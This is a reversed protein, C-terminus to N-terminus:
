ALKTNLMMTLKLFREGKIVIKPQYHQPLLRAVANLTVKNNMIVRGLRALLHSRSMEQKRYIHTKEEELDMFKQLKGIVRAIENLAAKTANSMKHNAKLQGTAIFHRIVEDAQQHLLEPNSLIKQYLLDLSQTNLDFTYNMKFHGLDYNQDKNFTLKANMGIADFIANSRQIAKKVKMRDHFTKISFKILKNYKVSKNARFRKVVIGTAQTIFSSTTHSFTDSPKDKDHKQRKMNLYRYSHNNFDTTLFIKTRTGKRHSMLTQYSQVNVRGKRGRVLFPIGGQLLRKTTVPRGLRTTLLTM